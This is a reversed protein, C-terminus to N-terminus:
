TDKQTPRTPILNDSDSIGIFIFLFSFLYVDTVCSNLNRVYEMMWDVLRNLITHTFVFQADDFTETNYHFDSSLNLDSLYCIDVFTTM